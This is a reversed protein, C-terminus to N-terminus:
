NFNFPLDRALNLLAIKRRLVFYKTHTVHSSFVPFTKTSALCKSAYGFNIWCPGVTTVSARDYSFQPSTYLLIIYLIAPVHTIKQSCKSDDFVRLRLQLVITVDGKM